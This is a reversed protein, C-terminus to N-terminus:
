LDMMKKYHKEHGACKFVEEFAKLFITHDIEKSDYFIDEPESHSGRGIYKLFAGYKNEEQKHKKDNGLCIFGDNTELDTLCFPM